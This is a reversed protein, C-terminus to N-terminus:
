RQENPPTRGYIYKGWMEKFSPVYNFVLMGSVTVFFLEDSDYFGFIFKKLSNNNLIMAHTAARCIAVSLGSYCLKPRCLQPVHKSTRYDM